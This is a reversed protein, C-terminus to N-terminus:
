LKAFQFQWVEPPVLRFILNGIGWILWVQLQQLKQMGSQVGDPNNYGLLRHCRGPELEM